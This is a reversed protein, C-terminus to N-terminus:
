ANEKKWTSGSLLGMNVVKSESDAPIEIEQGKRETLHTVPINWNIYNQLGHQRLYLGLNVDPGLGNRTDFTHKKYFEARILACYLGCGDIPEVLDEGVRNELSTIRRPQEVNDVHWAGVYPLGWRGLEVGTVMGVDDHAEVVKILEELANDPLIGDDEVSFVWDASGILERIQNHINVIHWRREAITDANRRNLSKVCIRNEIYLEQIKNRVQIFDGDSGDFVVILSDIEVTQSMLCDIIRDLYKIRSVPLITTIKM